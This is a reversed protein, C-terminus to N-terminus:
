IGIRIALRAAELTAAQSATVRTVAGARGYAGNILAGTRTVRVLVLPETVSADPAPSIKDTDTSTTKAM